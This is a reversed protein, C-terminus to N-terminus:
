TEDPDLWKQVTPPQYNAFQDLINAPDAAHIILQRHEARIFQESFAKDFLALLDDYYGDVNLLAVPKQHLGLQGWTLIECFEELTGFGGPLAIFAQSLNAMLAKREHMSGVVHLKTLGEHAIERDLMSSPIVGVVQGGAGLVADAVAGMLGVRAGGYVLTINREAFLHGLTEAAAKYTAGRGFSSGCFVCIHTLAM